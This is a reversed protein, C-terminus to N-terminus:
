RCGGRQGSYNLSLLNRSVHTTKPCSAAPVYTITDLDTRLKTPLFTEHGKHKAVFHPATTSSTHCGIVHCIVVHVEKVEHWSGGEGSAMVYTLEM